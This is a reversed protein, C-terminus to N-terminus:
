RYEKYMKQMWGFAPDYCKNGYERRPFHWAIVGEFNPIDIGKIEGAGILPGLVQGVYMDEAWVKPESAVILKAALKSVFYGVGGSPWPHCNPYTGRADRYNFTTGLAPMAGFRGAIDYNQYGCTALLQPIIYTDTDCLFTHDYGQDISWGLIARTKYPLSDYDDPCDLHIEDELTFWPVSRVGTFFRVDFPIHWADRGWTNRIHSHDGRTLDRWCSKVAILTRM